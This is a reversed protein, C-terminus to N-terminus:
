NSPFVQRHHVTRHLGWPHIAWGLCGILPAGLLMYVGGYNSRALMIPGAILGGIAAAAYTLGFWWRAFTLTSRLWRRVTSHGM